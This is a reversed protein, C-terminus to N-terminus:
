KVRRGKGRAAVERRPLIVVEGGARCAGASGPLDADAGAAGRHSRYTRDGRRMGGGKFATDDEIKVYASDRCEM